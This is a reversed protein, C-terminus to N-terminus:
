DSGIFASLEKFAPLTGSAGVKGVCLTGAGNGLRVCDSLEKERSIGALFGSVFADGAGTTDIVPGEYASFRKQKRGDSLLAGQKGLKIVAVPVGHRHFYAAAAEPTKEGSLEMAEYSSPLFYDLLALAPLLQSAKEQLAEGTIDMATLRGLDKARKLLRTLSEGELEPLGCASGIYIMDYAKLLEDSIEEERIQQSAGKQVVFNREGDPHILVATVSTPRDTKQIWQAPVGLKEAYALAFDGFADRGVASYLATEVGLAALNSAVNFADGGVQMRIMEAQSTDERLAQETVPKVMLDCVMLGVCLSKICVM